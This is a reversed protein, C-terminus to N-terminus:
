TNEIKSRRTFLSLLGGIVLLFGGFWIWRVCPKYYIRVSWSGDEFANGLSIYLDRFINYQIGPRSLTQEHSKYIRQETSILFKNQVFFNARLSKYNVADIEHLNAFVFHYNALHVSEGVSMKVQREISYSKNITVGLVFIAVGLHAIIMSWRKYSLSARFRWAYQLTALIIWVGISIGVYALLHFGLFAMVVSGQLFSCLFNWRIKQLLSSFSQQQWNMHPAIGMLLLLPLMIPMFVVNFYPEGVSIKAFHLSDLIIPYLTGLIITAMAILLIVSNILLATERSFLEFQPAQYFRQIRLSYLLFAGGIVFTLFLLLFVGRAPDTAFAHVSVLVGSRVLFTGILSLSFTIIALLLTWGKFVDRKESVILSHILATAALWPLFSANEVPDWFWWGGWGLERYAWWSGLVIGCGLYGWPIIIWPRIASVWNKDFKGEILAAIAFAFGIAFGVYGLYLSPPHFLLGPDQLLPTLDNGEILESPFQRQFPNSTLLLFTIFGTNLLGMIMLIKSFLGQTDHWYTEEKWGTLSKSFLQQKPHWRERVSPQFSMGFFSFALGWFAIILCWLLLSGEHGGWSASIRYILPLLHHSHERVYIVTMDNTIFSIILTFMALLLFIFQAVVSVKTLQFYTRNTGKFLTYFPLAFQILAFALALIIAFSGLEPIM